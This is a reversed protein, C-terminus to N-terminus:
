HRPAPMASPPQVTVAWSEEGKPLETTLHTQVAVWLGRYSRERQGCDLQVPLVSNITMWGM